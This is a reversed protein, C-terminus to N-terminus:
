AHEPEDDDSILDDDRQFQQQLWVLVGVVLVAALVDFLWDYPDASRGPLYKQHWEDLFGVIAVIGILLMPRARFLGIWLLLTLASFAALHAAKDYPVPILGAAFPQAGLYFIGGLFLFAMSIALKRAASQQSTEFLFKMIQDM